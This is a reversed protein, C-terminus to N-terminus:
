FSNIKEVLLSYTIFLKPGVLSLGFSFYFGTASFPKRVGGPAALRRLGRVVDIYGKGLHHSTFPFYVADLVDFLLLSTSLLARCFSLRSRV